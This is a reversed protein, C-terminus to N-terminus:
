KKPMSLGGGGVRQTVCKVCMSTVLETNNGTPTFRGAPPRLSDYSVTKGTCDVENANM